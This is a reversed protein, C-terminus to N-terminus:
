PERAVQINAPAFDEFVKQTCTTDWLNWSFDGAARRSWSSCYSSSTATTADISVVTSTSASKAKHSAIADEWMAARLKATKDETSSSSCLSKLDAAANLGGGTTRPAPCTSESLMCKLPKCKSSGATLVDNITAGCACGGGNCTQLYEYVAEGDSNCTTTVTVSDGANPNSGYSTVGSIATAGSPTCGDRRHM